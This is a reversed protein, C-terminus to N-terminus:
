RVWDLLRDRRSDPSLSNVEDDVQNREIIAAKRASERKLEARMGGFRVAGLLLAAMLGVLLIHKTM